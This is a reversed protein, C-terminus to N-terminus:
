CKLYVYIESRTNPELLNKSVTQAQPNTDKISLGAFLSPGVTSNAQTRQVNMAAVPIAVENTSSLSSLWDM